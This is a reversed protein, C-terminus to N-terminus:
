ERVDVFSGGHGREARRYQGELSRGIQLNQLSDLTAQKERQLTGRTEQDLVSTKAVLEAIVGALTRGQEKEADTMGAVADQKQRIQDELSLLDKLVSDRERLLADVQEFEKGSGAERLKRSLSLLQTCVREEQRLLGILPHSGTSRGDIEQQTAM